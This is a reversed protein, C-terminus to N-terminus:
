NQFLMRSTMKFQTVLTLLTKKQHFTLNRLSIFTVIDADAIGVDIKKNFNTKADTVTVKM